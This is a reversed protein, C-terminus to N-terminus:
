ATQLLERAKDVADALPVLEGRDGNAGNRLKMEVNGDKLGKDGVTIRLPLGILDADKFKPGPREARDDILVDHGAAELDAALQDVVSRVQGDYKIPTIIVDFPALARPWIIGNDDHGTENEIAAALIRNVGIGYSGMLVPVQQNHEDLVTLGLAGSYKTGLKFIHGLEIAHHSHLVGGDNKPSPDGDRANRIDAVIIEHEGIISSVERKWNFHRVHHDKQNAGAAWDHDQAADIDVVLRTIPEVDVAHPGVYGVVFGRREADHPEILSVTEIDPNISEVIRKLKAENVEHDGRVVAIVFFRESVFARPNPVTAAEVQHEKRVTQPDSLSAEYVLTKLMDRPQVGLLGAVQEIGPANPTHVKELKRTPEAALTHPRDGIACKEMNAAYNGKDSVLVVDEGTPAPAMFEHSANGGIPGAEAECVQFPIGCVTFIREYAAYQAQYAEGLGGPGDLTAHFSYADKMQFERSRLVGFRPRYEDRFKTQIQYLTKPLDKYSKIYAAMLATVVEEHTPGLANERGHRDSIVFLNEGYVKRRGTSEWLEIPQLSPLLVEAAGIADMERRIIAMAKHLSRLGLPLYDYVGSGVRHILGARIMLRHSPVEADAPVERATPILTQSWKTPM